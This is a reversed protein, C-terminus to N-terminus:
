DARRRKLLPERSQTTPHSHEQAEPSSSPGARKLLQRRPQQPEQALQPVSAGRQSRVYLRQGDVVQMDATAVLADRVASFDCGFPLQALLEECTVGDEGASTLSREVSAEVQAAPVAERLHSQSGAGPASGTVVEGVVKEDLHQLKPMFLTRSGVAIQSENARKQLLNKYSTERLDAKVSLAESIAGVIPVEQASAGGDPSSGSGGRPFAFLEPSARSAIGLTRPKDSRPESLLKLTGSEVNLDAVVDEPTARLWEESLWRPVKLLLIGNGADHATVGVSSM